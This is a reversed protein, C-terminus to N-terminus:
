KHNDLVRALFQRTREQAPSRLVQAPPGMEHIEGDHIFCVRDATEEVFSMEHSVIVITMGENALVKIVQLVEGVLEPDLASTVEDFLMLIPRMALARAIAVRQQQGGSLKEPHEHTKDALDVKELLDRAIAIATEKSDGRVRRPAEIINGLVTMHPWLNFSQFVMGIRARMRDIEREKRRGLRGERREYGLLTGDIYIEGSTPEELFNLCRLLTTKGSGSAGILALTEGKQVELSIGRLVELDGFSKHLDVVRVMPPVGSEIQERYTNANTM